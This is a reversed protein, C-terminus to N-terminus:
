LGDSGAASPPPVFTSGIGSALIACADEIAARLESLEDFAADAVHPPIADDDLRELMLAAAHDVLEASAGVSVGLLAEYSEFRAVQLLRHVEALTVPGSPAASAAIRHTDPLAASLGSSTSVENPRPAAETRPAGPAPTPSPGPRDAHATKPADTARREPPAGMAAVVAVYRYPSDVWAEAVEPGPNSGGVGVRRIRGGFRRGIARFAAAAEVDGIDTNVVIGFAGEARVSALADVLDHAEVVDFGRERLMASLPASWEPDQACVVVFM